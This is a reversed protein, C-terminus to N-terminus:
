FRAQKLISKLICIKHIQFQKTINYNYKNKNPKNSMLWDNTIARLNKKFRDLSKLKLFSNVMNRLFLISCAWPKYIVDKDNLLM